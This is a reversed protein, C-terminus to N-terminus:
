EYNLARALQWIATEVIAPLGGEGRKGGGRREEVGGGRGEM